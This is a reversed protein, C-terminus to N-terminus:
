IQIETWMNKNRQFYKKKKQQKTKKIEVMCNCTHIVSGQPQDILNLVNWQSISITTNLSLDFICYAMNKIGVDFSIIKM